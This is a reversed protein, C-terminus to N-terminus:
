YEDWALIKLENKKHFELAEVMQIAIQANTILPIDFDAAMRRILYDNKLELKQNNKPINIVLDIMGQNLYDKVNPKKDELPWHLISVDVGNDKLFEGTGKTAFLVYGMALLFIPQYALYYAPTTVLKIVDKSLLSIGLAVFVAIFSYYTLM